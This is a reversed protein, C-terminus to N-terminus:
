SCVGERKISGESNETVALPSACVFCGVEGPVMIQIHSHLADESVGSKFWVQNLNNCISNITMRAGYNDICSLM